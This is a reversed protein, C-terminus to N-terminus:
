LTTTECTLGSVSSCTLRTLRRRRMHDRGLSVESSVRKPTVPAQHFHPALVDKAVSELGEMTAKGML